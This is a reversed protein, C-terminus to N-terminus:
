QLKINNGNLSSLVLYANHVQQSYASFIQLLYPMKKNLSGGFGLIAQPM